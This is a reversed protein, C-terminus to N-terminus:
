AMPRRDKRDHQRSKRNASLRQLMLPKVDVGTERLNAGKKAENETLVASVFLCTRWTSLIRGDGAIKEEGLKREEIRM